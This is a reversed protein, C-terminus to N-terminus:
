LETTQAPLLNTKSMNRYYTPPPSGGMDSQFGMNDRQMQESAGGSAKADPLNNSAFEFAERRTLDFSCAKGIGIFPHQFCLGLGLGAAMSIFINGVLFYFMGNVSVHILSLQLLSNRIIMIASVLFAMFSMKGLPELARWRLFARLYGGHGTESSFIMWAICLAWSTHGLTRLCVSELKSLRFDSIDINVDGNENAAPLDKSFTPLTSTSIITLIIISALWGLTTVVKPIQIKKDKLKYLVVGLAVGVFYAGAKTWPVMVFEYYWEDLGFNDYLKVSHWATVGLHIAFLAVIAVVGAYFSMVLPVLIIPTIIHLQFVLPIYWTWAMCANHVDVLNGVMLLNTWWNVRCNEADTIFPPVMPGVTFYEYLCTYFMTCLMLPPMLSWYRHGYFGLLMKWSFGKEEARKLWKYTVLLGSLVLFSDTALTFTLIPQFYWQKRLELLKQLLNATTWTETEIIGLIYTMGLMSFCYSAFRIADCSRFRSEDRSQFLRKMSNLASFGVFAVELRESLSAPEDLYSVQPQQSENTGATTATSSSGAPPQISPYLPTTGGNQVAHKKRDEPHVSVYNIHGNSAPASSAIAEAEKSASSTMKAGEPAPFHGVMTVTDVNHADLKKQILSSRFKADYVAAIAAVLGLIFTICLALLGRSDKTLHLERGCWIEHVKLGLTTLLGFEVQGENIYTTINSTTCTRPVCVGLALSLSSNENDLGVNARCYGGQIARDTGDMMKYHTDIGLCMEYDGPWHLAGATLGPPPKFSADIMKLAWAQIPHSPTNPYGATALAVRIKFSGTEYLYTTVACTVIETLLTPNYYDLDARCSEWESVYPVETTVEPDQVTTVEPDQVTTVEPDVDDTLADDHLEGVASFAALLDDPSLLDTPDIGSYISSYIGKVLEATESNVEQVSSGTTVLAVLPAVRSYLILAAAESGDTCKKLEEVLDGHVSTVLVLLVSTVVALKMKM